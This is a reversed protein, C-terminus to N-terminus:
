IAYESVKQQDSIITCGYGDELGLNTSLLSLSWGWSDTCEVEVVAWAIPFM